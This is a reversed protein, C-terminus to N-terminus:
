VHQAGGIGVGANNVLIDVRGLGAVASVALTRAQGRKSLDAPLVIPRKGGDQEIEDALSVLAQERRASIALVVGERGLARALSRGIGSSAGTVLATKGFLQMKAM